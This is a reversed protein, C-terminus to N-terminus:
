CPGTFVQANKNSFAYMEIRKPREDMSRQANENFVRQNSFATSLPYFFFQLIAQKGM